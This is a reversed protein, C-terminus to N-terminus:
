SKIKRAMGDGNKQSYLPDLKYRSNTRIQTKLEPSITYFFTEHFNPPIKVINPPLVLFKAKADILYSLTLLNGIKDVSYVWLDAIM